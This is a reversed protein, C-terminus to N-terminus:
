RKGRMFESLKRIEIAADKPQLEAVLVPLTQLVLNDQRVKLIERIPWYLLSQFLFAGSGVYPNTLWYAVILAGAGLLFIGIAMGIVIFEARRNDRLAGDVRNNIAILDM